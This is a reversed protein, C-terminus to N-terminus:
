PLHQRIFPLVTEQYAQPTFAYLDEHGAGPIIWLTKPEAAAQFLRQTQALTTRQDQDGAMILKPTTVNAIHEIPRLDDLGIGLTPKLQLTLLPSLYKGFRGFRLTMRNDVADRLTSYVMELVLVDVKAATQGLLCAAGGLSLGIAVLKHTPFRQRVEALWLECDERERYGFTVHQGESQGHAQFDPLLNNFGQTAFFKARGLMQLRNHRNGHFHLIIPQEPAGALWWAHLHEGSPKQLQWNTLPLDQPQPVNSPSPACLKQGAYLLLLALNLLLSAFLLLM